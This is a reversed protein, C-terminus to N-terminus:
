GEGATPPPRLAAIAEALPPPAPAEVQVAPKGAAMPLTLARAHLLLPGARAAGDGYLGDGVVALGLAALHLRLQHTRGTRPALALWSRHGDSAMLTWDTVAPRGAADDLVMRWGHRGTLKAIPRAITGRPDRPVGDVVAWYTKRARKDEFLRGLRKLARRHRGLALCGSTDRDLRHAPRPPAAYDFSLAALHRELDDEARPGAHV